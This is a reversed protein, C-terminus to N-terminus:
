ILLVWPLDLFYISETQMVLLEIKGRDILCCRINFNWGVSVFHAVYKKYSSCMWRQCGNNNYKLGMCPKLRWKTIVCINQACWEKLSKNVKLILNWTVISPHILKLIHQGVELVKVLESLYVVEVNKHTLCDPYFVM